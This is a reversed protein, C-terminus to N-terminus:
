GDKRCAAAEAREWRLAVPGMNTRKPLVVPPRMELLRKAIEEPISLVSFANAFRSRDM